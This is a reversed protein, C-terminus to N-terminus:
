LFTCLFPATRAFTCIQFPEKYSKSKPRIFLRSGMSTYKSNACKCAGGRNLRGQKTNVQFSDPLLIVPESGAPYIKFERPGEGAKGIKRLLSKNEKSYIYIEAGETVYIHDNGVTITEPKLLAPLPVVEAAVVLNTLILLVIMLYNKKM